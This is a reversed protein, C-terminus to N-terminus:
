RRGEAVWARLADTAADWEAHLRALGDGVAPEISATRGALELERAIAALRLAGLTASSSTLTHAHRVLAEADGTAVAKGIASLQEAGDALFADILEVVFGQDDGVSSRLDSLVGPDLPAAREDTM